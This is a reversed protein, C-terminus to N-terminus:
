CEQDWSFSYVQFVRCLGRGRDSVLCIHNGILSGRDEESLFTAGHLEKEVNQKRSELFTSDYLKPSYLGWLARIAGIRDKIVMYRRPSSGKYRWESRKKRVKRKSMLRSDTSDIWYKKVNVKEHFRPNNISIRSWRIVSQWTQRSIMNIVWFGFQQYTYQTTRLGIRRCITQLLM